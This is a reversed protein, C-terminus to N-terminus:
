CVYGSVLGFSTGWNGVIVLLLSCRATAASNGRSKMSDIDFALTLRFIKLTALVAQVTAFDV